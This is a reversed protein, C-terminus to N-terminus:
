AIQNAAGKRVTLLPPVGEPYTPEMTQIIGLTAESGKARFPLRGTM